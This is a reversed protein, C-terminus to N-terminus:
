QWVTPQGFCHSLAIGEKRQRRKDTVSFSLFCWFLWTLMINLLYNGKLRRATRNGDKIRESERQYYKVQSM